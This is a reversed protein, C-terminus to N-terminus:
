YAQCSHKSAYSLINYFIWMKSCICCCIEGLDHGVETSVDTTDCKTPRKNGISFQLTLSEIYRLYRNNLLNLHGKSNWFIAWCYFRNPSSNAYCESIYLKKKGYLYSGKISRQLVWVWLAKFSNRRPVSGTCLFKYLPILQRKTICISLTVDNDKTLSAQSFNM